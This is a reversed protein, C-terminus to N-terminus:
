VYRYLPTDAVDGRREKREQLEKKALVREATPFNRFLVFCWHVYERLINYQPEFTVEEKTRAM